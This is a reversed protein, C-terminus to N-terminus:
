EHSPTTISDLLAYLQKRLLYWCADFGGKYTNPYEYEQLSKHFPFHKKINEVVKRETEQQIRTLSTRLKRGALRAAFEKEAMDGGIYNHILYQEFEEVEREIPDTHQENTM